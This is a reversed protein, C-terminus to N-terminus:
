NLGVVLGPPVSELEKESSRSICRKWALISLVARARVVRVRCKYRTGSAQTICLRHDFSTQRCHPSEASISGRIGVGAASGSALPDTATNSCQGVNARHIVLLSM